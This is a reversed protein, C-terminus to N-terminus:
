NQISELKFANLTAPENWPIRFVLYNWWTKLSLQKWNPQWWHRFPLPSVTHTERINPHWTLWKQDAIILNYQEYHQGQDRFYYGPLSFLYWTGPWTPEGSVLVNTKVNGKSNQQLLSRVNLLEQNFEPTTHVQSAIEVKKGENLYVSRYIQFLQFSALLCVATALPIKMKKIVLLHDNDALLLAHYITGFFLPYLTLWPVKEGVYSYSFWNAWFFFGMFALMNKNQTLHDITTAAGMTLMFSFVFFDFPHKLKLIDDIFVPPETWNIFYSCFLSIVLCNGLLVLHLNLYKTKASFYFFLTSIIFFLDYWSLIMLNYFFPGSIREIKHQHFWYLLSKQYLGDWIGQAYTFGNSYLLTFALTGLILAAMMTFPSSYRKIFTLIGNKQQTILKFAAFFLFYFILLGATMYSNEKVTFQMILFLTALPLRLSKRIPAFASFVMLSMFFLVLSDERFFRSWIIHLPSLGLALLSFGAALLGWRKLLTFFIVFLAMCHVLANFLRGVELSPTFLGYVKAVTKYLLPGHLMPDYKYALNVPDHHGYFSYLAHISEDHHPARQDLNFVRLGIIILALLSFTIWLIKKSNM